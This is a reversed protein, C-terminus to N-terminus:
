EVTAKTRFYRGMDTTKQGVWILLEKLIKRIPFLEKIIKTVPQGKLPHRESNWEFTLEKWEISVVVLSCGALTLAPAFAPLFGYLFGAAALLYGGAVFKLNRDLKKKTQESTHIFICDSFYSFLILTTGMIFSMFLCCVFVQLWPIAPWIPFHGMTALSLALDSIVGIFLSIYAFPIKTRPFYAPVGLVLLGVFAMTIPGWINVLQIYSSLFTGLTFFVFVFPTILVWLIAAAKIRKGNKFHRSLLLIQGLGVLEISGIWLLIPLSYTWVLEKASFIIADEICPELSGVFLGSFIVKKILSLETFEM